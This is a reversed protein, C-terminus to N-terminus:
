PLPLTCAIQEPLPPLNYEIEGNPLFFVILAKGREVCCM